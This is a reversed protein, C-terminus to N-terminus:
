LSEAAGHARGGVACLIGLRGELELSAVLELSPLAYGHLLSRGDGPVVVLLRDGGVFAVDAAGDLPVSALEARTAPSYLALRAGDACVVYAGDLSAALDPAGPQLRM